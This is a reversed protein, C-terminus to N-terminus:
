SDLQAALEFLTGAQEFRQSVDGSLSYVPALTLLRVCLRRASECHRSLAEEPTANRLGWLDVLWLYGEQDLNFRFADADPLVIGQHGLSALLACVERAWRLRITEDLQSGRQLERSWPLGPLEVALYPRKSPDISFGVIRAVNPVLL